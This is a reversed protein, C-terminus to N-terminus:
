LLRHWKRVLVVGFNEPSPALGGGCITDGKAGWVQLHVVTIVSHVGSAFIRAVGIYARMLESCQM